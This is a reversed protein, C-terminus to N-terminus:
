GKGLYSQIKRLLNVEEYARSEDDRGHAEKEKKEEEFSKIIDCIKCENEGCENLSERLYVRLIEQMESPSIDEIVLRATTVKSVREPTCSEGRRMEEAAKIGERILEYKETFERAKRGGIPGVKAEYEKKPM